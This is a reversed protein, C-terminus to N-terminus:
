SGGPRAARDCTRGRNAVPRDGGRRELRRGPISPTNRRCRGSCADGDIPTVDDHALEVDVRHIAAEHAMRRGWFGVTREDWWWTEAFDHEDRSTLEGVLEDLANDYIRSLRSTAASPRGRIRSRRRGCAPSRTCSYRPPTNWRTVSRGGQAAVAGSPGPWTRRCCGDARRRGPRSEVYRDHSLRM